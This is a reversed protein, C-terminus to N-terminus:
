YGFNQVSCLIFMCASIKTTSADKVLMLLPAM